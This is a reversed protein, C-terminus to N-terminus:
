HAIKTRSYEGPSAVVEQSNRFVTGWDSVRGVWSEKKRGRRECTDSYCQPRLTDRDGREYNVPRTSTFGDQCKSGSPGLIVLTWPM